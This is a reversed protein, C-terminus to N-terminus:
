GGPSSDPRNKTRRFGPITAGQHHSRNARKDRVDQDDSIDGDSTRHREYEPPQKAPFAPQEGQPVETDPKGQRQCPDLVADSPELPHGGCRDDETRIVFAVDIWRNEEFRQM